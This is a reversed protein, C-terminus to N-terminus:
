VESVRLVCLVCCVFCVCFWVVGFLCGAVSLVFIVVRVVRCVVILFVEGGFVCCWVIWYVVCLLSSMM